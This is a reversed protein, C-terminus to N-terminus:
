FKGIKEVAQGFTRRHETFLTIIVGYYEVAQATNFAIRALQDINRGSMRYSENADVISESIDNLQRKINAVRETVLDQNSVYLSEAFRNTLNVVEIFDANRDLLKGLPLSGTKSSGAVDNRIAGFLKDFDIEGIQYRRAIQEMKEPSSIVEALFRTTDSLLGDYFNIVFTIGSEIDRLFQLWTVQQGAMCPLKIQAIDGYAVRSMANMAKKENATFTNDKKLLTNVAGLVNVDGFGHAVDKIFNSLKQVTSILPRHVQLAETSIVRYRFNLPLASENVPPTRRIPM